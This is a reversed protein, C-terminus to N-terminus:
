PEVDEPRLGVRNLIGRLSTKAANLRSKITGVPCACVQAAENLSLGQYFVLELALHQELPLQDLGNRVIQRQERAATSEDPAPRDSKPDRDLADISDHVRGRIQNHAKHHVIGLLWTSLRSGGRFRGANQWVAVLSEQVAEEATAPDCTIRLAFTYMRQGYGDYLRRLADEDGAAIQAMLDRESDIMVVKPHLALDM